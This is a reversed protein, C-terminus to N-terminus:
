TKDRSTPLDTPPSRLPESQCVPLHLCPSLFIVMWQAQIRLSEQQTHTRSVDWDAQPAKHSVQKQLLSWKFCYTYIKFCKNLKTVLCCDCDFNVFNSCTNGWERERWLEHECQGILLPLFVGLVDSSFYSLSSLFEWFICLGDMWGNNIDRRLVTPSSGIGAPRQAHPSICGTGSALMECSKPQQNWYEAPCFYTVDCKEFQAGEVEYRQSSSRCFKAFRWSSNVCSFM